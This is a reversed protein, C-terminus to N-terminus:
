LIIEGIKALFLFPLFPMTDISRGRKWILKWLGAIGSLFFAVVLIGLTSKYGEFVGLIMFCLGDGYGIAEKTLKGILLFIGGLALGGLVMELRQYKWSINFSIGIIAFILLFRLPLEKSKIDFCTGIGLFIVETGQLFYQQWEM